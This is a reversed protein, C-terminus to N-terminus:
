KRMMKVMIMLLSIKIVALNIKSTIKSM